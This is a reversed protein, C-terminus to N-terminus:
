ILDGVWSPLPYGASKFLEIQQLRELKFIDCIQQVRNYPVNNVGNLWKNVSDATCNLQRALWAESRQEKGYYKRVKDGFTESDM